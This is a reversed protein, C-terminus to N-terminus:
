LDMTKEICRNIIRKRYLGLVLTLLQWGFFIILFKKITKDVKFRYLLWEIGLAILGLLAFYWSLKGGIHLIQLRKSLDFIPLALVTLFLMAYQFKLLWDRYKENIEM